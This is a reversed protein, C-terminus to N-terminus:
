RKSSVRNLAEKGQKKRIGGTGILLPASITPKSKMKTQYAWAIKKKPGTRAYVEKVCSNPIPGKASVNNGQHELTRLQALMEKQELTNGGVLMEEPVHVRSSNDVIKLTVM